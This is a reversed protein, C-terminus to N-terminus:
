QTSAVGPIVSPSQAEQALGQLFKRAAVYQAPKLQDIIEQLGQHLQDIAESAQQYFETEPGAQQPQRNKFLRDVTKRQDVFEPRDFVAPWYVIGRSDLQYSPLRKPAASRTYRAKQDAGARSRPHQSKYDDHMKRKDYFTKAAKADNDLAITRTKEMTEQVKAYSEAAAAHAKVMEAQARLADAQSQIISAGAYGLEAQGYQSAAPGQQTVTITRAPPGAWVFAARSCLVLLLIWVLHKLTAM